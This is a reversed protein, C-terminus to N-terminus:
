PPPTQPQAPGDSPPAPPPPTGTLKQQKLEDKCIRNLQSKSQNVDATQHKRICDKMLQQKTPSSQTMSDEAQATHLAFCALSLVALSTLRKSHTMAIEAYKCWV